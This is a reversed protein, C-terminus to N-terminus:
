CRCSLEELVAKRMTEVPPDRGTWIRFAEAGQHVLMGVGDITKAGVARAEQLLKTELPNYVIDFVVLDSHLQERTVVSESLNPYMGVTTTNILIDCNELSKGLIDLGHAHGNVVRALEEARRLTRNFIDINAGLNSFHYAIAKAAGGAGVLSINAGKIRIGKETLAKEAGLGDTNYGRIGNKFDITNVAGIQLALEDPKVFHLTQEKHPVTVNLGGFGLANAGNIANGLYEPAVRFPHYVCDMELERFAANHMAPSLSHEVPNGIVGFVKM